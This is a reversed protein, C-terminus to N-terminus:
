LARLQCLIQAVGDPRHPFLRAKVASAATESANPM